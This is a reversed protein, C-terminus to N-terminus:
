FYDYGRISEMHEITYRVYQTLAGLAVATRHCECGDSLMREERKIRRSAKRAKKAEELSIGWCGRSTRQWSLIKTLWDYNFFEKFGYIGCLAADEMFLDQKNKPYGDAAITRTEVLMSACFRSSLQEITDKMDRFCGTSEGILLYFIEHSLSYYRYGPSTMLKWCDGSVSCKYDTSKMDTRLEKLCHDSDWEHMAEGIITPRQVHQMDLDRTPYDQEWFGSQIIFGIRNYYDMQGHEISPISKNSIIGALQKNDTIASLISDPLQHSGPKKLHTLLVKLQGTLLSFPTSSSYTLTKNLRPSSRM